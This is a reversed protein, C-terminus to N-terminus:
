RHALCHRLGADFDLGAPITAALASAAKTGMGLNALASAVDSAVSCGAPEAARPEHRTDSRRLIKHVSGQNWRKGDRTAVGQSNLWDAVGQFTYGEARLRKMETLVASEGPKSGYVDRGGCRGTKAKVQQRAYRLKAVIMSRDYQAIAGMIQRMLVRTPDESNVDDELASVLEIGRKKLDAIMIEQVMLERAFRDLKEIVIRDGANCIGVLHAWMPRSDGSTAGCIGEEQFIGNLTWGEAQAKKEISERQRDFGTGDIQSVGSVRMYGYTM